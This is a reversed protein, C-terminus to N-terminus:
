AWKPAQPPNKADAFVFAFAFAFVVALTFAFFRCFPIPGSYVFSQTNM